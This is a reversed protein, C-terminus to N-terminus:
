RTQCLLQPRHLLHFKCHGFQFLFIYHRNQNPRPVPQIRELRIKGKEIVREENTSPSHDMAWKMMSGFDDRALVVLSKLGVAMKRNGLGGGVGVGWGRWGVGFGFPRLARIYGEEGRLHSPGCV